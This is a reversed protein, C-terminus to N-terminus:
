FMNVEISRCFFHSIPIGPTTDDNKSQFAAAFQYTALWQLAIVNFDGDIVGAPCTIQRAPKLDPKFQVLEGNAFGAVIQKGKPSWCASQVVKAGDYKCFEYGGQKVTFIFLGGRDSVIAIVNNMVPNWLLSKAHCPAQGSVQFESLLM